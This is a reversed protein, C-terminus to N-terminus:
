SEYSIFQDAKGTRIGLPNLKDSLRRLRTPKSGGLMIGETARREFQCNGESMDDLKAPTNLFLKIPCSGEPLPTQYIVNTSSLLRAVTGSVQIVM